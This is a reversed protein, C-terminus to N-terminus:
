AQIAKGGARNQMLRLMVAMRVAVGNRPQERIVSRPGDAVEDDIEVGRNMPGPHMVIAEPAAVSLRKESLGYHDFYSSMNPLEAQQMREKQIRLAIVVDAGALGDALSTFRGAAAFPKEEPLWGAPGILRLDTTGLATLATVTSRAVRSHAIDGIIAVGLNAFAPKHRAITLVDLLGQTPHDRNGEGANIIATNAAAVALRACVGNDRHRVVLLDVNMAELTYLTDDLSEGKVLSSGPLDLEVFHAGLRKAALEFSCRTRTSPEFFVNAATRGALAPPFEAPAGPEAVLAGADALLSEIEAGPVDDLTLLHRLRGQADFQPSKSPNM